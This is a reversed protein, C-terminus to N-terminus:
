AALNENLTGGYAVAAVDVINRRHHEPIRLYAMEPSECLKEYAEEDELSFYLDIKHALSAFAASRPFDENEEFNHHCSSVSVLEESLNWAGAVHAGAREHLEYFVRGILAPSVESQSRAEKDLIALLAVKGADHLLGLLFAKEPDIGFHPALARAIAGISRAQRWVEESYAQLTKAQLIAGRMSVALIMSRLSKLGVRMVADRLSEVTVRAGFMVSNATKLLEGCLVPDTEILEVIETLEAGPNAAMDMAQVSTSPLQPLNYRGSELRDSVRFMLESERERLRAQHHSRNDLNGVGSQAVQPAQETKGQGATSDQSDQLERGPRPASRVVQLRQPKKPSFLNKLWQFMHQGFKPSM